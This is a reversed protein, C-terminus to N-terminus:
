RGYKMQAYEVAREQAQPGIFIAQYIEGESGHDIAEVTWAGAMGRREGVEVQLEDDDSVKLAAEAPM